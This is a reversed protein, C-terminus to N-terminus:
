GGPGLQRFATAEHESALYFEDGAFVAKLVRERATGYRRSVELEAVGSANTDASGLPELGHDGEILFEITRGEVPAGDSDTLTARAVPPQDRFAVADELALTAADRVLVDGESQATARVGDWSVLFTTDGVPRTPTVTVAAQGDADTTATYSENSGDGDADFSFRVEQGAIPAGEGNILNAILAGPANRHLTAKPAELTAGDIVDGIGDHDSDAQGPNPVSPANDFGKALAVEGITMAVGGPYDHVFDLLQMWAQWRPMYVTNNERNSGGNCEGLRDLDNCPRGSWEVEEILWTTLGGDDTQLQLYDAYAAADYTGNATQPPDLQVDASAHFMGFQDFREHHSGEPSFIPGYSGAEGEEFVSASFGRFGLQAVAKRATTDSTDFPPSFSILPFASSSWDIKPDAVTAGSERVWKNDYNGLLTDQGVKLLEFSEAETLGCTECSFFNRDPLGAWDSNPINNVHYTGHQGIELRASDNRDNIWDVVPPDTWLQKPITILTVPVQKGGPLTVPDGCPDPPDDGGPGYNEGCKAEWEAPSLTAADTMLQTFENQFFRGLADIRIVFHTDGRSWLISADRALQELPDGPVPGTPVGDGDPDRDDLPDCADGRGDSDADTQAPNAVFPCNDDGDAVGDNDDDPDAPDGRREWTSPDEPDGLVTDFDNDLQDLFNISGDTNMDLSPANPHDPANDVYDSIGDGDSDLPELQRLVKVQGEYTGVIVDAFGDGTADAVTVGRAMTGVDALPGFGSHVGGASVDLLVRGDNAVNSAPTQAGSQLGVALDAKGDGNLDGSGLSLTFGVAARFSGHDLYANTRTSPVGANPARLDFSGAGDNVFL